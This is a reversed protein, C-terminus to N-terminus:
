ISATASTTARTITPDRCKERGFDLSRKTLQSSVFGLSLRNAAQRRINGHKPSSWGGGTGIAFLDNELNDLPDNHVYLPVALTRLHALFFNGVNEQTNRARMRGRVSWLLPPDMAAYSRSKKIGVVIARSVSTM